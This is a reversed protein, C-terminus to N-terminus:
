QKKLDFIKNMLLWKEGKKAMPLAQQYQWMLAEWQQVTPNKADMEAKKEFCFDDNTEMTMMLRNGLRYIEMSVIGSDFISQAIAPWIQQHHQEYEAILREDDILDLTLVYKKM